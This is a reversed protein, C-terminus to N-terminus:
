SRSACRKKNKKLAELLFKMAAWDLRRYRRRNILYIIIPISVAGLGTWFIAPHIFPM